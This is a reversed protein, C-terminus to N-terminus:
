ARRRRRTAAVKRTLARNVREAAAPELGAERAIELAISGLMRYLDTRRAVKRAGRGSDVEALAVLHRQVTEVDGRRIPGTLAATPGRRSVSLLVGESLRVLAATAESESWGAQELLSVAEGLLAVLYNSAFVAAAHYLARQSDVVRKPRAGLDRALAGLRRRLSETTADVAVVIGRFADPPRPEPFSQLPHFSGVPHRDRLSELTGLGLAGSMHVFAVSRPIAVGGVALQAAVSKVVGDPVTLLVLAGPQSELSRTLRPIGTRARVLTVRHGAARLAPALSRGLNGRGVVILPPQPPTSLLPRAQPLPRRKLPL